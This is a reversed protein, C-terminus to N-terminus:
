RGFKLYSYSIVVTINGNKHLWTSDNETPQMAIWVRSRLLLNTALIPGHLRWKTSLCHELKLWDIYGIIQELM